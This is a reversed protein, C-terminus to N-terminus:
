GSFQDFEAPPLRLLLPIVADEELRLHSALVQHHAELARRVAPIPGSSPAKAVAALVEDSRNHLMKHGAELPWVQLGYRRTLFPYLKSEEYGEHGSMASLLRQFEVGIRQASPSLGKSVEILSETFRLFNAHSGLLLAQRPYNPHQAWNTRNLTAM